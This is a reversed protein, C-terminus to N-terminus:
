EPFAGLGYMVLLPGTPEVEAGFAKRFIEVIADSKYIQALAKNVALRM